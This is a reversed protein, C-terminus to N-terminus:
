LVCLFGTFHLRDEQCMQYCDRIRRKGRPFTIGTSVREKRVNLTSKQHLLIFVSSVFFPRSFTKGQHSNFFMVSTEPGLNRLWKGLIHGLVRHCQGERACTRPHTPSTCTYLLRLDSRTRCFRNEKQM